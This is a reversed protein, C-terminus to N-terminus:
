PLVSAVQITESQNDWTLSSVFLCVFRNDGVGEGYLYAELAEDYGLQRCLVEADKLDWEDDCVTGNQGQYNIFVLGDWPTPGGELSFSVDGAQFLFFTFM